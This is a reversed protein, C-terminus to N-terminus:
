VSPQDGTIEQQTLKLIQGYVSFADEVHYPDTTHDGQAEGTILIYERGHICAFSALCLGAQSTYGTKGGLASLGAEKYSEWQETLTESAFVAQYLTSELCLGEPHLSTPETQFRQTELINKLREEQLCAQLLIAMDEPTSYHNRDHLGSPNVFHTHDMGLDAAKENMWGVFVDEDGALWLAYTACCEAGSPLLMGYLLEEPTVTEGPEFGALSAHQVMLASFIESPIRIAADWKETREVAVLATMLKTMSAPYMREGGDKEALIRGTPGDLLIGFRSNIGSVDVEGPAVPMDSFLFTGDVGGTLPTKERQAEMRWILILCFAALALYFCCLAKWGRRGGRIKKQRQRM